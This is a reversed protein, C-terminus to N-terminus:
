AEAVQGQQQALSTRQSQLSEQADFLNLKSGLQKSELYSRLRVRDDEIKL